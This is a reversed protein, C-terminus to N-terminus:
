RLGGDIDFFSSPINTCEYSGILENMDVEGGASIVQSVRQLLSIETPKKSLQNKNKNTLKAKSGDTDFTHLTIVPLNEGGKELCKQLTSEGMQKLNTLDQKAEPSCHAGTSICILENSPTEQFPNVMKRLVIELCCQVPDKDKSIQSAGGEHHSSVLMSEQTLHLMKKLKGSVTATIPRTYLWKSQADPKMTIGCLGQKQKVEANYTQELIMDPSVGNHNGDARRITFEGNAFCDFVYPADQSLTSM